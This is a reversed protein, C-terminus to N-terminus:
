KIFEQAMVKHVPNSEAASMSVSYTTAFTDDKWTVFTRCTTIVEFITDVDMRDMNEDMNKVACWYRNYERGDNAPMKNYVWHMDDSEFPDENTVVCYDGRCPYNWSGLNGRHHATDRNIMTISGENKSLGGITLYAPVIFKQQDMNSLAEAYTSGAQLQHRIWLSPSVYEPDYEHNPFAKQWNALSAAGKGGPYRQNLSISLKGARAGTLVGAYGVYNPGSFEEGNPLKFTMYYTMDEITAPDTAGAGSAYRGDQLIPGTKVDTPFASYDLNRGHVVKGGATNAVTSTCGGSVDYMVSLFLIDCVDVGLAQAIEPVEEGAKIVDSNMANIISDKQDCVMKYNPAHESYKFGKIVAVIRTLKAEPISALATTYDAKGNEDINITLRPVEFLNVSAGANCECVPEGDPFNKVSLQAEQPQQVQLMCTEDQVAWVAVLRVALFGLHVRSSM